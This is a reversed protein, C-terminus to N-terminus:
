SFNLLEKYCEYTAEVDAMANHQNNFHKNFLKYYLEGLKPYKYGGYIVNGPIKCIDKGLRM